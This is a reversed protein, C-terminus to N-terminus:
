KSPAPPPAGHVRTKRWYVKDGCAVFLRDLDKGGFGASVLPGNGPKPVVGLLHGAADFIQLGLATTVYCRGASDVTMGDGGAVTPKNEPAKMTM